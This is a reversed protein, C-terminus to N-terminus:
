NKKNSFKQYRSIVGNLIDLVNTEQKSDFAYKIMLVIAGLTEVFVSSIYVIIIQDSLPMNKLFIKAVFLLLMALYQVGIFIIFFITFTKKLKRKSENQEKLQDVSTNVINNAIDIYDDESRQKLRDDISNGIENDSWSDLPLNIKDALSDFTKIKLPKHKKGSQTKTATEEFSLKEFDLDDFRLEM